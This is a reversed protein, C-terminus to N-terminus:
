WTGRHFALVLPGAATLDDLRVRQGFPTSLDFAPATMGVQLIENARPM